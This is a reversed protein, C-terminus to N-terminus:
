HVRDSREKSKGNSPKIELFKYLGFPKVDPGVKAKLFSVDAKIKKKLKKKRM